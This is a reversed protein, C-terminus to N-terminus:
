YPEDEGPYWVNFRAYNSQWVGRKLMKALIPAYRLKPGYMREMLEGAGRHRNMYQEYVFLECRENAAYSGTPYISDLGNFMDHVRTGLNSVKLTGLKAVIGPYLDRFDAVALKDLIAVATAENAVTRSMNLTRLLWSRVQETALLGTGYSHKSLQSPDLTPWTVTTNALVVAAKHRVQGEGSKIMRMLAGLVREVGPIPLPRMGALGPPVVLYPDRAAIALSHVLM